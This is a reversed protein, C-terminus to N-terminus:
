EWRVLRVNTDPLYVITYFDYYKRSFSITSDNKFRIKEPIWGISDRDLQRLEPFYEMGNKLDTIKFVWRYKRMNSDDRFTLVRRGPSLILDHSVTKTKRGNTADILFYYEKKNEFRLIKHQNLSKEFGVYLFGNSEMRHNSKSKPFLYLVSDENKLYLILNDCNIRALKGSKEIEHDENLYRFSNSKKILENEESFIRTDCVPKEKCGIPMFLILLFWLHIKM